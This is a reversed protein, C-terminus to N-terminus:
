EFLAIIEENTLSALTESNTSIFDEALLRKKEQLKLIKEEITGKSALRIVQVAKIQGIRYARDSAQDTVAPNWWPDYHIVTDAGTLNLGTGGAKLSILFVDREGGNFRDSMEAREYPPTKGDLYFCSVNMSRLKERIIALMSTFQSFVLIRHDSEVANSVLEVLMQLKGSEKAYDADILSPHCCIQRLRMLLSLIKIKNKGERLLSVTEEKAAALYSMYLLKQEATLEAYMTNEIKEPLENLVDKKMRRLIFPHIRLKLDEGALADAGKLVPYEYRNRFENIGYLYGSMVFDFVSWLEGLSNEIPTGTLAFKHKASIKKVSRASMTKHNKIHQAEDIFFYEFTIGSYLSIDRRLIPYSTIIFEYEDVTDILKKRDEKAGDIILVSADPIFREIEGLWNYMLASPTVVLTPGSPREGHIFALVQLTKGLGMDDALIGGLGMASLQKLWTIGDYQYPRIIGNLNEPIQPKYNKIEEIYKIFSQEKQVSELADLYLARYKPLNKKGTRIEDETFDLRDFLLLTDAGKNKVLDYFRGDDMRYFARGLRVAEIMGSLQEFSIDTDFAVELFDIDANYSVSTKIAIDDEIKLHEVSKSSFIQAKASLLPIEFTIFDYIDSDNYLYFTDDKLAFKDFSELIDREAEYDRIVIKRQLSSNDPIRITLSGYSVTVVASIRNKEADLYVKFIPKENVILEDLGHMIVGHRGNLAPLANAAFLITNDGKFSLQTRNESALARYVPMFYGQWESDTNYIVDEFLFWSGDRTLSFGYESVSLSISNEASGIDIIIDPNEEKIQVDNLTMSDFVLVFEADYLLPFIRKATQEGFSTRYVSKTYMPNNVSHMEYAEALIDIVAKEHPVFYTREPSYSLQRDIKFEKGNLYCDLFNEIGHVPVLKEGAEISMSYQPMDGDIDIYLTFRMYLPEKEYAAAAYERCLGGAIRDNEDIYDMGEDLETQRQKLAAVIHKCVTNMTEYYPCTCFSDTVKDEDFKVQVNYLCEGDVVAKILNDSRKRLHVRGERWYEIGRKYITASCSKKILEDTIKM